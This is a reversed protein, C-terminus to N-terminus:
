VQVCTAPGAATIVDGLEMTVVNVGGAMSPATSVNLSITFSPTTSLTGSTTKMVTLALPLSSNRGTIAGITTTGPLLCSVTVSVGTVPAARSTEASGPMVYRHSPLPSTDPASPRGLM